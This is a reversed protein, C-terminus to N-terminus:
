QPVAELTVGSFARYGRLRIYYTGATPNNYTCTENNGNRYPRCDYSSTTPNAGRRVYLDADGSGGSIRVVFQSFGAPVDLQYNLWEGQSGSLNSENITSPGGTGPEDYSAVLSTNSYATYGRLMVYYTGAQVSNYSCTENNGNRYPRCDYTSTTPQSGYRVYLDADGSGGSLTFTLNTAGAPVDLTYVTQSGQTGSIGNVAVGNSLENDGGGGSGPNAAAVAATADVIGAGCGSCTAPFSRSTSELLSEVEAPTISPKVAYMLAAVGAVHPTAMSTGQYYEYNPTSPSTRGSNLTSLVGNSFSTRVDGGPAAVDVVSGFNSYYERGGNRNTAAVTVVNQCNAPTANSANVNSNGAAVVVTAGLSVAQNIAAQSTADCAGGGGLSLNIVKAPNPNSPVGSVSGGAAWIIGDAIDSTRGGCKGLVRVPVIKSNYAVGTIGTNNNGVAAITGAVHTGHWSSDSAREGPGCEDQAVADGPDSANSDRGNGDNGIASSSIMDYGPLVNADLDPHSTIGTDLVAVVVGSGTTTDWAGPARLGGTSEYYHWQDVYQPDNPTAMPKLMRDVEVYEIDPDSQLQLMLQRVDKMRMRKGNKKPLQMVHAGTAMRRLHKMSMGSRRSAAQEVSFSQTSLQGQMANPKYKIILQDAFENDQQTTSTNNASMNASFADDPMVAHASMTLLSLSVGCLTSRIASRNRKM